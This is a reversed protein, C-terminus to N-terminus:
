VDSVNYREEIEHIQRRNLKLAAMSEEIQTLVWDITLPQPAVQALENSEPTNLVFLKNYDFLSDTQVEGQSYLSLVKQYVKLLEDTDFDDDNRTEVFVNHYIDIVRDYRLISDFELDSDDIILHEAVVNPKNAKESHQNEEFHYEINAQNMISTFNSETLESTQNIEIAKKIKNYIKKYQRFKKEDETSKFFM